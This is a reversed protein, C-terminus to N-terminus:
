KSGVTSTVSDLKYELDGEKSQVQFYLSDLLTKNQSILNNLFIDCDLNEELATLQLKCNSLYKDDFFIDSINANLIYNNDLNYDSSIVLKGLDLNSYLLLTIM